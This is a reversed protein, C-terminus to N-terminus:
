THWEESQDIDNKERNKEEDSQVTDNLSHDKDNEVEGIVKYQSKLWQETWESVDNVGNRMITRAM